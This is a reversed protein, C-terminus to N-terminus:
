HKEENYEDGTLEEQGEYLKDISFRNLLTHTLLLVTYCATVYNAPGTRVCYQAIMNGEIHAYAIHCIIDRSIVSVIM